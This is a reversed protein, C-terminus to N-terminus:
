SIGIVKYTTTKNGLTIEVKEDKKKGLLAQGIPSEDSIKGNMPDAELTGVVQFREPKGNGNKLEVVSGLRVESNSRSLKIVELNQLVHELESIRSELRDQEERATQYEANESLDGLERAQKIRDAVAGRQSVLGTHEQKLEDVGEQTLRFLKKM